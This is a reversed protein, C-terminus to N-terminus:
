NAIDGLGAAFSDMFSILGGLLADTLKDDVQINWKNDTKVYKIDVTNTVTQRDEKKLIELLQEEVKKNYEDESFSEGSFAGDFAMKISEQMWEQFVLGMDITTIETKVVITNEDAEEVSIINHSLKSFMLKFVEESKSDDTLLELSSLEDTNLYTNIQELNVTEFAGFMEDVSKKAKEVEGCGSVSMVMMITMLLSLIRKIKKM